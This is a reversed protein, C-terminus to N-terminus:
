KKKGVNGLHWETSQVAKLKRQSRVTRTTFICGTLKKKKKIRNLLRKSFNRLLLERQRKRRRIRVRAARGGARVAVRCRARPNELKSILVNKRRRNPPVPFQIKISFCFFGRSCYM